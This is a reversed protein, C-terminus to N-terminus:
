DACVVFEGTSVLGSCQVSCRAQSKAIESDSVNELETWLCFDNGSNIQRYKWAYDAAPPLLKMYVTDCGTTGFAFQNACTTLCSSSPPTGTGCGNLTNVSTTSPGPYYGFDNYYLRLANKMAAIESKKKVDKARSRVGVYNTVAFAVLVAIIGIVVLLEILTFGRTRNDNGSRESPAAIRRFRKFIVEDPVGRLSLFFFVKNMGSQGGM